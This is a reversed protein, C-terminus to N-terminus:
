KEESGRGVSEREKGGQIEGGRNEGSEKGKNRINKGM